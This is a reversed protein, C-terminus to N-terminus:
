FLGDLRSFLDSRGGKIGLDRIKGFGLELGTADLDLDLRLGVAGCFIEFSNDGGERGDVWFGLRM